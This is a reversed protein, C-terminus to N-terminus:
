GRGPSPRSLTCSGVDMREPPRLDDRHHRRYHRPSVGTVTRFARAAHSPNTWGVQRAITEVTASTAILLATMRRVRQHRLFEAPGMGVDRQFLRNLQSRSLRVAEALSQMTWAHEPHEVLVAVARRVSDHPSPTSSHATLADFLDAVHRFRRFPSTSRLQGQMLQRLAADIRPVAQLPPNVVLPALDADPAILASILENTEPLWRAQDRLFTTDFHATTITVHGLPTGEYGQRRPLLIVDGANAELEGAEFNLLTAGANVLLLQSEDCVVRRTASTYAARNVCVPFNLPSDGRRSTRWGM